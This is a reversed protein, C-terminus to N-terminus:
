GADIRSLASNATSKVRALTNLFKKGLTEIYIMAERNQVDNETMEQMNSPQNKNIHGNGSLANYEHDENYDLLFILNPQDPINKIKIDNVDVTWGSSKTHVHQM